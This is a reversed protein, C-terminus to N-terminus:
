LSDKGALKKLFQHVYLRRDAKGLTAILYASDPWIKAALFQYWDRCSHHRFCAIYNSLYGLRRSLLLNETFTLRYCSLEALVEPNGAVCHNVRQLYHGGL